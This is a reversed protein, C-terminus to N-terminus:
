PEDRIVRLGTSADLIGGRISVRATEDRGKEDPATALEEVRGGLGM